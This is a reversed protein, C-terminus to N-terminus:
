RLDEALENAAEEERLELADMTAALLPKLEARHLHPLALLDVDSVINYDANVKKYV